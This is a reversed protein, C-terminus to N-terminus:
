PERKNLKFELMRNELSEYDPVQASIKKCFREESLLSKDKEDMFKWDAFTYQAVTKLKSIPDDYDFTVRLPVYKGQVRQWSTSTKCFVAWRGVVSALSDGRKWQDKPNLCVFSTFEVPLYGVSKDFVIRAGGKGTDSVLEVFYQGSGLKGEDSILFNALRVHVSPYEKALSTYSVVPFVLPDMWFCLKSKSPKGNVTQVGLLDGSNPLRRYFRDGVELISEEWTMVPQFQAFRDRLADPVKRGNADTDITPTQERRRLDMRRSHSDGDAALMGIQYIEKVSTADKERFVECDFICCYRGSVVEDSALMYKGLRDEATDARVCVSFMGICGVSAFVLGLRMHDGVWLTGM